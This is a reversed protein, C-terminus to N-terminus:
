RRRRVRFTVLSAAGIGFLLVTSPEPIISQEIAVVSDVISGSLPIGTADSYADVGSLTLPTSIATTPLILFSLKAFKELGPSSLPQLGFASFTVPPVSPGPDTASVIWDAPFLSSNLSVGQYDLISNDFLLLFELTIPDDTAELALSLDISVLDGPKGTAGSTSLTFAASATVAIALGALLTFLAFLHRVTKM